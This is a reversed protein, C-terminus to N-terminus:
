SIFTFIAFRLDIIVHLFASQLLGKKAYIYGLILNIIMTLVLGTILLYNWSLRFGIFAFSKLSLSVFFLSVIFISLPLNRILRQSLAIMGFRITEKFFFSNLPISLAWFLNHPYYGRGKNFFYRDFILYTITAIIVGFILLRWWGEKIGQLSGLGSLGYKESWAFGFM